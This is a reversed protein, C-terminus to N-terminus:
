TFSGALLKWSNFFEDILSSTTTGAFTSQTSRGVMWRTCCSLNAGHVALKGALLTRSDTVELALGSISRRILQTPLSTPPSPSVAASLAKNENALGKLVPPMSVRSQLAKGISMEGTSLM